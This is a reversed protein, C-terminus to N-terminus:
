PGASCDDDSSGGAGRASLPNFIFSFIALQRAPPPPSTGLVFTKLKDDMKAAALGAETLDSHPEEPESVPEAPEIHNPITETRFNRQTIRYPM